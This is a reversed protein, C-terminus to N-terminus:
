IDNTPKNNKHLLWLLQAQIYRYSQFNLDRRTDVNQQSVRQQNADIWGTTAGYGNEVVKLVVPHFLFCWSTVWTGSILKNLWDSFCTQNLVPGSSMWLRWPLRNKVCDSFFRTIGSPKAWLKWLEDHKQTSLLTESQSATREFYNALWGAASTLGKCTHVSPCLPRSNERKKEEWGSGSLTIWLSLHRATGTARCRGRPAPRPRWKENPSRLGRVSFNRRCSFLKSHLGSFCISKAWRPSARWHPILAAAAWIWNM